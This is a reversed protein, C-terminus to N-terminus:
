SKSLQAKRLCGREQGKQASEHLSAIALSDKSTNSRTDDSAWKINDLGLQLCLARETVLLM